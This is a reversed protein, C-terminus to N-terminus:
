VLEVYLGRSGLCESVIEVATALGRRGVWM